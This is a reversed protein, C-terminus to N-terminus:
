ICVEGNSRGKRRAGGVRDGMLGGKLRESRWKETVDIM